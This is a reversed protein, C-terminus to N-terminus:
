RAVAANAAERPRTWHIPRLAARVNMMTLKAANSNRIILPRRYGSGLASEVGHYVLGPKTTPIGATGNMM